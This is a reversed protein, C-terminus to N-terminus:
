IFDLLTQPYHQVRPRTWSSTAQIRSTCPPLCPWILTCSEFCCVQCRCCSQRSTKRQPPGQGGAQAQQLQRQLQNSCGLLGEWALLHVQMCAHWHCWGFMKPMRGLRSRLSAGHEVLGFVALRCGAAVVLVLLHWAATWMSGSVGCCRDRIHMESCAQSIPQNASVSRSPTNLQNM